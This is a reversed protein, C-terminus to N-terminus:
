GGEAQAAAPADPPDPVLHASVVYCVAVAVIILPVLALGDASVFIAALLVSTMPLGLMVTTMAGIGMAVGAVLPLGPLHSLAMGAASGIFMAPFIPGGRFSSLSAMYAVGKLVALLALAGATYTGATEVLTPLEDQGSFLVDTSSHVTLAAYLMAAGAVVVGMMISLPVPNQEVVGQLHLAIRRIVGGAIAAGVGIGIAWAFEAVTPSTFPPIQPLALSFTGFGTWSDLGVFILTGIGASLLGPMLLPGLLPGGFAMGGAELILFAAIIPNGLLTSVAAFSGALAALMMAQKQADRKVLQMAWLGLGGGIAILPAEPGLVGGLGLTVLAALAVGPVEIPMPTGSVKMGEAPKHGATGPLYRITLAVGLGLLALWPLPWWLPEHGFGLEGPLTSYIYKQIEAVLKLFFYAIVAIPAGIIACLVLLVAYPKSRLLQLPTPQTPAPPPASTAPPSGAADSM